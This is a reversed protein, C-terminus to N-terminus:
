PHYGKFKMNKAQLSWSSYTPTPRGQLHLKKVAILNTEFDFVYHRNTSITSKDKLLVTANGADDIAKVLLGNYRLDVLTDFELGTFIVPRSFTLMFVSNSFGEADVGGVTALRDGIDSFLGWFHDLFSFEFSATMVMTCSHPKSEDITTYSTMVPQVFPEVAGLTGLPNFPTPISM